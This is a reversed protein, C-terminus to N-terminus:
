DEDEALYALLEEKTLRPGPEVKQMALSMGYEEIIDLMRLYEALPLRVFQFSNEDLDDPTDNFRDILIEFPIADTAQNARGNPQNERVPLPAELTSNM